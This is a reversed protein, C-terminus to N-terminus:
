KALLVPLECDTLIKEATTGFVMKHFTRHGFAGMLILGCNFEKAKAMIQESPDGDALHYEVKVGHADLYARAEELTVEGARQPESVTLLHFEYGGKGGLDVATRLARASESSGDYAILINNVPHFKEAVLVPRPCLRAVNLVEKGPGKEVVDGRGREGLFLCDHSKAARALVDGPLGMTQTPVWNVGAEKAIKGAENLAQRGNKVLIEQLNNYYELPKIDIPAYPIGPTIMSQTVQEQDVVHMGTVTGKFRGAIELAIRLAAKSADSGDIGVLYRKWTSM